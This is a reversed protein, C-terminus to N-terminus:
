SLGAIISHKAWVWFIPLYIYALVGLGMGVVTFAVAIWMLGSIITESFGKGWGDLM